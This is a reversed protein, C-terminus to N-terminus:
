EGKRFDFKSFVPIAGYRGELYAKSLKKDYREKFRDLSYLKSLNKDDREIFWIEDRRFLNQDMISSEHTTFILQIKDNAHLEDFLDLFQSTLKPHLSRELEDVVFVMDEDKTLLMDILDFLRRTGDSEEEFDFDYISMGHRLKITTIKPEEKDKVEINFFCTDSRGSLRFYSRRTESMHEKVKNTVDIFIQKPLMKSLEALDIEETRINSIGTDFSSILKSVNVLSDTDFYYQFDKLRSSPTIIVLHTCIWNYVRKFVQLNSDDDFSKGRNMESLFLTETKDEFDKSYTKFRNREETTINISEGLKPESLCEREFICKSSGNQYLEYLWEGTIKRESLIASFGYAYFKGNISFQLEFTSQKEENVANHRCFAKTSWLPLGKEVTTKFFNFFDILNTKGSANAGYIIAHKLIRTNSGVKIRHNEKARIKTSSIMTMETLADFSKFNEVLLKALM